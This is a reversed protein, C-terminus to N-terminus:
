PAVTDVVWSGYTGSEVSRIERETKRVRDEVSVVYFEVPWWCFVTIM